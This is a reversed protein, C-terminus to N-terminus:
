NKKSDDLSVVKKKLYCSDLSLVKKTQKFADMSDLDYPENANCQLPECLNRTNYARSANYPGQVYSSFRRWRALLVNTWGQLADGQEEPLWVHEM